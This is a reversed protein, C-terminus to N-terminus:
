SKNETPPGAALLSEMFVDNKLVLSIIILLTPLLLREFPARCLLPLFSKFQIYIVAVAVAENVLWFLFLFM